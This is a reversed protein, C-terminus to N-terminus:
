RLVRCRGLWSGLSTCTRVKSYGRDQLKAPREANRSMEPSQPCPDGAEEVAACPTRMHNPRTEHHAPPGMRKPPPLLPKSSEWASTDAVRAVRSNVHPCTSSKPPDESSRLSFKFIRSWMKLISDFTAECIQPKPYQPHTPVLRSISEIERIQDSPEKPGQPEELEWM